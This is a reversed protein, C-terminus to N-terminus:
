KEALLRECKAAFISISQLSELLSEFQKLQHMQDMQLVVKRWETWSLAHDPHWDRIPNRSKLNSLDSEADAILEVLWNFEEEFIRVCSPWESLTNKTVFHSMSQGLTILSNRPKFGKPRCPRGNGGTDKNPRLGLGSVTLPRSGFTKTPPGALM